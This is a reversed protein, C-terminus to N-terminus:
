DTYILARKRGCESCKGVVVGEDFFGMMGDEREIRECEGVFFYANGCKCVPKEEREPKRHQGTFSFIREESGCVSCRAFIRGKFNSKKSGTHHEITLRLPVVGCASCKALTFFHYDNPYRQAAIRKKAYARLDEFSTQHDMSSRRSFNHRATRWEEPIISQRFSSRRGSSPITVM